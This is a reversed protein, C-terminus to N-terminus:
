VIVNKKIIIEEVTFVTFVSNKSLCMKKKEKKRKEGEKREREREREKEM